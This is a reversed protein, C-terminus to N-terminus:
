RKNNSQNKPKNSSTTTEFKEYLSALKENYQDHIEQLKEQYKREVELVAREKELDKQNTLQTLQDVHNTKLDENNQSLKEIQSQQDRVTAKLEENSLLLQSERQQFDAMMSEKESAFNEKVQTNETAYDKYQNVLSSLTDIKDKYEQILAQNNANVSHQDELQKTLDEKDEIAQKADTELESLRDQLEKVNAQLSLITLERSDLKETLGRVADDKIYGARQIMSAILQYIRTSHIELEALDPAFETAGQKIAQVEVLAVAKELWDKNSGANQTAIMAKVKDHLEESIKFGLVKEAMENEKRQNVWYRQYIM